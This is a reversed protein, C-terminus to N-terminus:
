QRGIPFLSVYKTKLYGLQRMMEIPADHATPEIKQESRKKSSSDRMIDCLVYAESVQGGEKTRYLVRVYGKKVVSTDDQLHAEHLLGVEASGGSLLDHRISSRSEGLFTTQTDSSESEPIVQSLDLYFARVKKPDFFTSYDRSITGDKERKYLVKEPRREVLEAVNESGFSKLETERSEQLYRELNMEM